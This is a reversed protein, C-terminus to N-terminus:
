DAFRQLIRGSTRKPLGGSSCAVARVSESIPSNRSTLEKHTNRSEASTHWGGPPSTSVPRPQRGALPQPRRHRASALAEGGPALDRADRRVMAITYLIAVIEPHALDGTVVERDEHQTAVSTRRGRALEHRETTRGIRQPPAARLGSHLLQAIGRRM